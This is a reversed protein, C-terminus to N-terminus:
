LHVFRISDIKRSLSLSLSFSLSLSLSLSPTSFPFQFILSAVTLSSSGIYHHLDDVSSANTVYTQTFELQRKNSNQSIMIM